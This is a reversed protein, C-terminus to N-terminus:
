TTSGPFNMLPKGSNNIAAISNRMTSVDRTSARKTPSRSLTLTDNGISM